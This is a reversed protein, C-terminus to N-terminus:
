PMGLSKYVILMPVTRAGNGIYRLLTYNFMPTAIRSGSSSLQLLMKQGTGGNDSLAMGGYISAVAKGQNM